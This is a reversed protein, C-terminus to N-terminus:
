RAAEINVSWDTGFKDTVTGFLDGWFEKKIPSVANGGECLAEFIQRLRTEDKGSLSLTVSGQPYPETRSGDSGQLSIDGGHLRAHMVKGKAEVPAGPMDDMMQFDVQCGFVQGYFDMADRCNGAFFIYPHLAIPEM